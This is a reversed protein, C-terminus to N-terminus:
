IGPDATLLDTVKGEADTFTASTTTTKGDKDTTSVVDAKGKGLPGKLNIGYSVVVAKDQFDYNCNYLSEQTVPAGLAATVRSDANIKAMVDIFRPQKAYEGNICGLAEKAAGGVENVVGSVMDSCKSVAFIIAGLVVLLVIISTWRTSSRQAPPPMQDTM